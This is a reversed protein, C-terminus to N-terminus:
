SFNQASEAESFQCHKMRIKSMRLKTIFFMAKIASNQHGTISAILFDREWYEIARDIDEEIDHNVLPRMVTKVNVTTMKINIEPLKSM